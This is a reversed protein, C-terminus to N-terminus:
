SKGATVLAAVLFTPGGCKNCYWTGRGDVDDFRYRDKGGCFPCPQHKDTVQESTLGALATLISPWHGQTQDSISRSM